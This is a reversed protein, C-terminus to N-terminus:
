VFSENTRHGNIDEHSPSSSSLFSSFAEFFVAMDALCTAEMVLIAMLFTLTM